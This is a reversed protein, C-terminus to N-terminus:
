RCKRHFDAWERILTPAPRVSLVLGSALRDPLMRLIKFQNSNCFWVLMRGPSPKALPVGYMTCIRQVPLSNQLIQNPYVSSCTSQLIHCPNCLIHCPSRLVAYCSFSFSLFFFFFGRM